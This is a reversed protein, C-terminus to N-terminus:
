SRKVIFNASQINLGLINKKSLTLPSLAYFLIKFNKLIEDLKKKSYIYEQHNGLTDLVVFKEDVNESVPLRSVAIIDGLNKDKLIDLGKDLYSLSGNFMTADFVTNRVISDDVFTINNQRFTKKLSNSNIFNTIQNLEIISFKFQNPYNKNIYFSQSGIGGGWDLVDLFSKDQDIHNKINLVFNELFLKRDYLREAVVGKKKIRKIMVQSYNNRLNKIKTTNKYRIKSYLKAILIELIREILPLANLIFKNFM